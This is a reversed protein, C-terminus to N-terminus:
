KNRARKKETCDNCHFDPVERKEVVHSKSIMDLDPNLVAYYDSAYLKLPASNPLVEGEKTQMQVEWPELLVFKAVAKKLHYVLLNDLQAHSHVNPCCNKRTCRFQNKNWVKHFFNKYQSPYKKSRLWKGMWNVYLQCKGLSLLAQLICEKYLFTKLKTDPEVHKAGLLLRLSPASVHLVQELLVRL